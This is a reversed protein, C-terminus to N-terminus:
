DNKETMLGVVTLIGTLVGFILYVTMYSFGHGVFIIWGWRYAFIYTAVLGIRQHKTALCLSMIILLISVELAPLEISAETAIKMFSQLM